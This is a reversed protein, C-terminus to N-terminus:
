WARLSYRHGPQLWAMGAPVPMEDDHGAVGGVQAAVPMRRAPLM